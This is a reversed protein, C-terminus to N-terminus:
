LLSFISSLRSGESVQDSVVNYYNPILSLDDTRLPASSAYAAIFDEPYQQHIWAALMGGYSGGVAVCPKGLFRCLRVFDLLTQASSLHTYNRNVQSMGYDRHEAFVLDMGLEDALVPLFGSANVFGEIDGENGTYFLTVNSGGPRAFIFYRQKFTERPNRLDFHDVPQLFFSAQGHVYAVFLLLLLM